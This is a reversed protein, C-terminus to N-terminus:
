RHPAVVEIPACNARGQLVCDQDKEMEAITDAIWVGFVILLILVAIAIANMLMRRRDDGLDEEYRALDNDADLDDAPDPAGRRRAAPRPRFRLVRAPEHISQAHPRDQAM